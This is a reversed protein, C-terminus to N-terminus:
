TNFSIITISDAHRKVIYDGKSGDFEVGREGRRKKDVKSITDKDLSKIQRWGHFMYERRSSLRRNGAVSVNKEHM